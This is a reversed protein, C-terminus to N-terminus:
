QWFRSFAILANSTFTLVSFVFCYHCIVLIDVLLNIVIRFQEVQIYFVAPQRFRIGVVGNRLIQRRLEVYVFLIQGVVVVFFRQALVQEIKETGNQRGQQLELLEM